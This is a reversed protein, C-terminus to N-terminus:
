TPVSQAGTSVQSKICLLFEAIILNYVEVTFTLHSYFIEHNPYKINFAIKSNCKFGGIKM